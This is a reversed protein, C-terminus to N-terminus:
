EPNGNASIKLHEFNFHEAENDDESESTDKSKSKKNMKMAKAVASAVLTNLEEDDALRKKTGAFKVHGVGRLNSYWTWKISMPYVQIVKCPNMDHGPGHLPCTPNNNNKNKQKRKWPNQLRTQDQTLQSLNKTDFLPSSLKKTITHVKVRIM